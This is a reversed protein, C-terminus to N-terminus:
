MGKRKTVTMAARKVLGKFKSAMDGGASASWPHGSDHDVGYGGLDMRDRTQSKRLGEGSRRGVPYDSARDTDTEWGAPRM